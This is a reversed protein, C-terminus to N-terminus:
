LSSDLLVGASPAGLCITSQTAFVPHLHIPVGEIGAGLENLTISRVLTGSVGVFGQFSTKFPVGLGLGAGLAFLPAFLWQDTTAFAALLLGSSVLAHIGFPVLSGFRDLLRGTWFATLGSLIMAAGYVSGLFSTSWGTDASISEILVGFGYAWTGYATITYIGLSYVPTWGRWGASTVGSTTV